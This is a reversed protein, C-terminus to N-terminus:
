SVTCACQIWKIGLSTVFSLYFGFYIEFKSDSDVVVSNAIPSRMIAAPLSLGVHCSFTSAPLYPVRSWHACLPLPCTYNARSWYTPGAKIRPLAIGAAPM